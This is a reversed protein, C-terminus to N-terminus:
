ILKIKGCIKILNNILNQRKKVYWSLGKSVLNFIINKECRIGLM